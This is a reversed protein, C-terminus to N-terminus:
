CLAIETVPAVYGCFVRGDCSLVYKLNIGFQFVINCYYQNYGESHETFLISLNTCVDSM